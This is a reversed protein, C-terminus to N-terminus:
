IGCYSHVLFAEWQALAVQGAETSPHIKLGDAQLAARFTANNRVLADYDAYHFNSNTAALQRLDANYRAAQAATKYLRGGVYTDWQENQGAWVVCHGQLKAAAQTANSEITEFPIGKINVTGIDNTGLIVFVASASSSYVETFAGDALYYGVDQGGVARIVSRWAFPAAANFLCFEQAQGGEGVVSGDPRTYQVGKAISDGIVAVMKPATTPGCNAVVDTTGDPFTCSVAVLSLLGFLAAGRRSRTSLDSLRFM